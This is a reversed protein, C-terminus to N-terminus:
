GRRRMMAYAVALMGAIVFTATFRPAGKKATEAATGEAAPAPKLRNHSSVIISTEAAPVIQM